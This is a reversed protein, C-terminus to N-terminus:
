KTKNKDVTKQNTTKEKMIKTEAKLMIIEMRITLTIDKDTSNKQNRLVLKVNANNDKKNQSPSTINTNVNNDKDQSTSM